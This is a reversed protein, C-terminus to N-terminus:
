GCLANLVSLFDFPEGGNQGTWGYLIEETEVPKERGFITLGAIIPQMKNVAKRKRWRECFDRSPM